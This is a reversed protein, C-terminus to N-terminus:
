RTLIVVSQTVLTDFSIVAAIKKKDKFFFRSNCHRM